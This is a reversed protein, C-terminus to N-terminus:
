DLKTYFLTLKMPSILNKPSNIVARNAQIVSGSVELYLGYDSVKNDLIRQITRAINFKYAHEDGNYVGGYYSSGEYADTLITDGGSASVGIQILRLKVPPSYIDTSGEQVPILLEAKNVAINGSDTFHKLYPMTIKVKVGAMAQIYNLSDKWTADSLQHGVDTASGNYFHEQHNILKFTSLSFEYKQFTTDNASTIKRFYLTLKSNSNYFLDFYSISGSGIGLEPDTKVYLGKFYQLWSANDTFQNQGNLAVLDSALTQSLPIRLAAQGNPKPKFSFNGSLDNADYTFIKDTYYASDGLDENLRYVHATLTTNTDGYYGAYAMSLILSDAILVDSASGFSPSLGLVVQAFFGADSRGFVPDNYSGLLQLAIGNSNLSDEKVTKTFLTATDTKIVLLQDSTPQVELGLEEPDKCSSFFVAGISLVM